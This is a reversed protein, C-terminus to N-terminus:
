LISKWKTSVGLKSVNLALGLYTLYQLQNEMM